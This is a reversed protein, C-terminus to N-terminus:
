PQRVPTIRRRMADLAPANRAAARVVGTPDPSEWLGAAYGSALGRSGRLLATWARPDRIHIQAAPGGGPGLLHVRGGPEVLAPRGATM